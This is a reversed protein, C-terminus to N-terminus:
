VPFFFSFCCKVLHILPPHPPLHVRRGRHDLVAAFQSTFTLTICSISHKQLLIEDGAFSVLTEDTKNNTQNNFLKQLACVFESIFGALLSFFVMKRCVFGTCSFAKKRHSSSSYSCDQLPKWLFM